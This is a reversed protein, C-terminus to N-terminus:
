AELKAGEMFAKRSTRRPKPERISTAAIKRLIAALGQEDVMEAAEEL